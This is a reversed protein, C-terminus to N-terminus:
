ASSPVSLSAARAADYLARTLPHTPGRSLEALPTDDVVAGREMVIVRDAILPVYALDHLVTITAIGSTAHLQTLLRAFAAATVPDLGTLPEDLLLLRPELALARAIAARQRQGTSLEHPRREALTVPLEVSELLRALRAQDTPLAHATRAEAISQAIRLRPDLSRGADQMLWQVHRRWHRDGHATVPRQEFTVSGQSPRELGLLTRILTSKGSGSPGVIAVREGAHIALTVRDLAPRAGYRVSVADAHLITAGSAPPPPAMPITDLTPWAALLARTAAHRASRRLEAPTATEVCTGAELTVVTDALAMAVDLDHTIILMATGVDARVRRLTAILEGRAIADLATTLEDVILVRPRRLLALALGARQSEGGSLQHPYRDRFHEPPELGATRLAHCLAEDQVTAPRHDGAAGPLAEIMAAQARLSRVPDLAQAIGAPVVGFTERRWAPREDDAISRVDRGEIRIVSREDMALGAPLLQLLARATLTKGSGSTGIIAVTGQAPVSFSVDRVLIQQAGRQARITLGQVEVIPTTV